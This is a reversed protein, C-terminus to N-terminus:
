VGPDRQRRRERGLRRPSARRLPRDPRERDVLAPRRDAEVLHPRDHRRGSRVPRSDGLDAPQLDTPLNHEAQTLAKQTNVLDTNQNSTITFAASINAQGSQINSSLTQLDQTGAIADEIPKVISDRMVSTSAGPYSVNISVTPQSVNPFQQQVLTTAALAGALLMLSLLVFILTPRRVFLATLSM